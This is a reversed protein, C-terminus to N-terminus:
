LSEPLRQAKRFGRHQNQQQPLDSSITDLGNQLFIENQTQGL